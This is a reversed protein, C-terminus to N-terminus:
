AEAPGDDPWVPHVAAVVEINPKMQRKLALKRCPKRVDKQPSSDALATSPRSASMESVLSHAKTGNISMSSAMPPFVSAPPRERVTRRVGPM